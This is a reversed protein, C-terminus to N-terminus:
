ANFYSDVEAEHFPPVLKVHKTIDFGTPVATSTGPHSSASTSPKRELELARVRLHMAQVELEKARTEVERIRLTLRLDETSRGALPEGATGSGAAETEAEAADSDAEAADSDVEAPLVKVPGKAHPGPEAEPAVINMVALIYSEVAKSGHYDVMKPDAVVLTEVWKEKSVSRQRIRRRRRQQRREWRERQSEIDKFSQHYDKIGCTGNFPRKGSIPQIVPSWSPPSVHRKYIAHAQPASTEDSSTELPQIFFEEDSLKFLGTLGDCTSIAASGKVIADDWVEGLFHCHSSGAPKIRAGKLGGFRRETMFGPALLHPNLTLNFHLNHGGHWFQYFIRDLGAPEVSAERRQLRRAHHSLFNSLFHGKADLRTPHVVEYLPFDDQFREPEHSLGLGLTKCNELVVLVAFFFHISSARQGFAHLGCHLRTM